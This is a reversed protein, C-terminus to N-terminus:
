AIVDLARTWQGAMRDVTVPLPLGTGGAKVLTGFFMHGAFRGVNVIELRGLIRELDNGGRLTERVKEALGSAKLFEGACDQRRRIEDLNLEPQSLYRELLRSGAPTVTEDMADLLSGKRTNASTRFVELNRQTAPDVLLADGSRYEEVKRLNGPKGCLVDNAYVLLAGAPGLGGHDLGIGLVNHLQGVLGLCIDLTSGDDIVLARDTKKFDSLNGFLVGVLELRDLFELVEVGVVDPQVEKLMLEADTFYPTGKSINSANIAREEDLDCVGVLDVDKFNSWSLIHNTSFFGCGIVAVKSRNENIM